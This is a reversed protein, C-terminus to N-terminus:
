QKKRLALLVYLVRRRVCAWQLSLCVTEEQLGQLLTLVGLERDVPEVQNKATLTTGTKREKGETFNACM